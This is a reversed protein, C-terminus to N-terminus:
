YLFSIRSFFFFFFSLTRTRLPLTTRNSEVSYSLCTMEVVYLMGPFLNDISAQNSDGDVVVSRRQPDSLRKKRKSDEDAAAAAAAAPLPLAAAAAAVPDADSQYWVLRYMDVRGSPKEWTLTINSSDVMPTLRAVPNPYLTHRMELPTASEVRHSVTTIQLAYREGPILQKLEMETAVNTSLENWNINDWTRYRIIYNSFLSDAPASWSLRLSSSSTAVVSLNDPLNPYVAQFHIHPESWLGHSVAFVKVQYGAGPYLNEILIRPEVVERTRSEGTDNRIYIVAYKDQKSTVDSKWSVNLGNVVPTLEEIIPSSPRTAQYVVVPRSEVSDSRSTVTLSYNRGPLLSTMIFQTSYTLIVSADAANLAEAGPSPSNSDGLEVMEQYAIKYSDQQSRSDPWWTLVLDSVSTIGETGLSPLSASLNQVPLPRTTINATAPWSAVSGSLTKVLVPYTRGPELGENFFAIRADDRKVIVPPQRGTGVSVHYRDFESIGKPEEWRVEFSDSTVLRRDFTVNRPRLPVTRYQATTPLSIEGNSVTQVSINYNRGPLLGYFPAQAPGPPEGVKEVDLTSVM